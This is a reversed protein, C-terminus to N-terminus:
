SSRPPRAGRRPHSIWLFAADTISVTVSEDAHITVVIRRLAPWPSTTQNDVVEFVM